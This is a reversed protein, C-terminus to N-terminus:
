PSSAMITTRLASVNSNAHIAALLALVFNSLRTPKRIAILRSKCAYPSAVNPSLPYSYNRLPATPSLPPLLPLLLTFMPHLMQDQTKATRRTTTPRQLVLSPGVMSPRPSLSWSLSALSGCAAPCSFQIRSAYEPHLSPLHPPLPSALAPAFACPLSARHSCTSREPLFSDLRYRPACLSGLVFGNAVSKKTVM